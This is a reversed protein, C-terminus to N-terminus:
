EIGCEARMRMCGEGGVEFERCLGPRLDHHRCKGSCLDLWPCPNHCESYRPSDFYQDLAFRIEAPIYEIEDSAYIPNVGMCCVGCGDCTTPTM